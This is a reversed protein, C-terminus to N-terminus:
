FQLGKSTMSRYIGYCYVVPLLRSPVRLVLVVTELCKKCLFQFARSRAGFGNVSREKRTELFLM